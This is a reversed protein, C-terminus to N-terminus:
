EDASGEEEKVEEKKKKKKKEGKVVIENIAGDEGKVKICVDIVNNKRKKGGFKSKTVKKKKKAKPKPEEPEEGEVHKLYKERNRYTKINNLFLIRLARSTDSDLPEEQM